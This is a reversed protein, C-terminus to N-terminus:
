RLLNRPLILVLTMMMKLLLLLLLLLPPPPLELWFHWAVREEMSPLTRFTEGMAVGRLCSVFENMSLVQQGSRAGLENDNVGLETNSLHFLALSQTKDM